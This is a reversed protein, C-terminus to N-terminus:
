ATKVFFNGMENALQLRDEFPSFFVKNKVDCLM